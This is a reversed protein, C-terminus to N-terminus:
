RASRVATASRRALAAEPGHAWVEPDGIDPDYGAERMLRATAERLELLYRSEEDPGSGAAPPDIPSGFSITVPHAAFKRGRPWAQYAGSVAAPVVRAGTERAIWAVGRRFPRISGDWTREGEPYICLIRGADVAAVGARLGDLAMADASIPFIRYIRGLVAGWGKEFYGTFGLFLLQRHVEPPMVAALLVADMHTQHNQSILLP